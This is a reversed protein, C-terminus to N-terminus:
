DGIISLSIVLPPGVPKGEAILEARKIARRVQPRAGQMAFAFCELQNEKKKNVSNCIDDAAEYVRRSLQRQDPRMRLNLDGYTVRRVLVPDVATVVVDRHTKADAPHTAVGVVMVSIFGAAATSAARLIEM